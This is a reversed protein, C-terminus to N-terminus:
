SVCGGLLRKYSASSTQLLLLTDTAMISHGSRHCGSNLALYRRCGCLSPPGGPLQILNEADGHPTQPLTPPGTYNCQSGVM